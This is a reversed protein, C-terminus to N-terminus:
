IALAEILVNPLGEYVSSLVFLDAFKMFKYPNEVFGPMIVSSQIKYKIILDNLGGRNKGDGLIILTADRTEKLHAFAKILTEFDKQPSLRGVAIIIPRKVQGFWKENIDEKVLEYLRSNITPNYIAQVERGTIEELDNALESSNAIVKNAYRYLIPVLFRVIKQKIGHQNIKFEDIHNRESLIHLVRKGWLPSFILCLINVYYQCSIVVISDTIKKKNHLWKAFEIQSSFTSKSKLDVFEIGLKCIEDVYHNSPQITVFAVEFGNRILEKSLGINTREVGGDGFYPHFFVVLPKKKSANGM